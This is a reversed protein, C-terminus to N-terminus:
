LTSDDSMFATTLDNQKGSLKSEFHSVKFNEAQALYAAEQERMKQIVKDRDLLHAKVRKIEERKM